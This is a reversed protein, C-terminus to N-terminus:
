CLGGGAGRAQVHVHVGGRAVERERRAAHGGHLAVGAVPLEHAHVADVGGGLVAEARVDPVRLEAAAVPLVEGLAVVPADVPDGVCGLLGAHGLM